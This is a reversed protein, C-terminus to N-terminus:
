QAPLKWKHTWPGYLSEGDSNPEVVNGTSPETPKKTLSAFMLLPTVLRDYIPAAARFGFVVLHNALGVSVRARPHDLCRVTARAVKVPSDIPIPPNPTRGTVNAAQSYIPTNVAGPSVSCVHIDPQDRLELQLARLLGAQGWKATVYSSMQPTSISGLLSNVFVLTGRGEPRFARLAARATFFTGKIATDVVTTFVETPVAEVSGYAMVAATHVVADVRGHEVLTLDFVADIAAENATDAAKVIVSTAGRQRCQAAVKELRSAERAVLVLHDHREALQYAVCLGIGSTAGIVVVVAPSHQVAPRLRM